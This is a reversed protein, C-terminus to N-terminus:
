NDSILAKFKIILVIFTYFSLISFVNKNDQASLGKKTYGILFGRIKDRHLNLVSNLM